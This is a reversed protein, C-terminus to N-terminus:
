KLTVTSTGENFTVSGCGSEVTKTARYRITYTPGTIAPFTFNAPVPSTGATITLGGIKTGNLSVDVTLSGCTISNSLGISSSFSTASALATTRVGQYYDGLNWFYPDKSIVATDTATPFIFSATIGTDPPGTDPTGTDPTGTDPTGTDPTGTDPTGTDPTGTDLTGTDGLGTDVLATDPSTGSDIAAGTDPGTGTDVKTDGSGDTPTDVLDADKLGTDKRGADSVVTEFDEGTAACASLLLSALVLPASRFRM